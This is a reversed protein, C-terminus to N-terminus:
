LLSGRDTIQYRPPVHTSHTVLAPKEVYTAVNDVKNRTTDSESQCCAKGRNCLTVLISLAWQLPVPSLMAKRYAGNRLRSQTRSLYRIPSVSEHWCNRPASTEGNKFGAGFRHCVDATCVIVDFVECLHRLRQM